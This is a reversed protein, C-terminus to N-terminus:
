IRGRVLYWGLGLFEHLTQENTVIAEAGPLLSAAAPEMGSFNCPAPIVALGQKRFCRESRPMHYAETVLVIKGIGKARLIQAGFLANEYTSTSRAETWVMREPVGLEIIAQRMVAAAPTRTPVPGGCLLVPLEKSRNWLWAGYRCRLYTNEKLTPGPRAPQDRIIGAALVVIAGADTVVPPTRSYGIELSRAALWAVPPWATLFAGILGAALLSRRRRAFGWGAMILFFALLPHAYTLCAGGVVLARLWDGAQRVAV